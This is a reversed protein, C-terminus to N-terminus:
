VLRQLIICKCIYFGAGLRVELDLQESGNLSSRLAPRYTFYDVM